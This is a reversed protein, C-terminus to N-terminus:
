IEFVETGDTLLEALLENKYYYNHRKRFYKDVIAKTTDKNTKGFFEAIRIRSFGNKKALEGFLTPEVVVERPIVGLERLLSDSPLHYSYKRRLKGSLVLKDVEEKTIIKGFVQNVLDRTLYTTSDIGITKM